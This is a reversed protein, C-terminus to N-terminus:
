PKIESCDVIINRESDVTKGCALEQKWSSWSDIIRSAFEYHDSKYDGVSLNSVDTKTDEM